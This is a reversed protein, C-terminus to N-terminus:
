TGLVAVAVGVGKRKPYTVLQLHSCLSVMLEFQVIDQFVGKRLSAPVCTFM